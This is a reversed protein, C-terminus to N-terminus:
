SDVEIYDSLVFTVAKYLEAANDKKLEFVIKLVHILDLMEDYTIKYRIM